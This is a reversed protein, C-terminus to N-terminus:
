GSFKGTPVNRGVRRRSPKKLFIRNLRAKQFPLKKGRQKTSFSCMSEVARHLDRIEREIEDLCLYALLFEPCSLNFRERTETVCLLLTVCVDQIENMKADFSDIDKLKPNGSCIHKSEPLELLNGFRIFRTIGYLVFPVMDRYETIIAPVDYVFPQFFKKLVSLLEVYDDLSM